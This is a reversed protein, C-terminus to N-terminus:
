YYADLAHEMQEAMHEDISKHQNQEFVARIAKEVTDSHLMLPPQIPLGLAVLVNKLLRENSRKVLNEFLDHDQSYPKV